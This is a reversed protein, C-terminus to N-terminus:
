SLPSLGSQIKIASNRAEIFKKRQVFGRAVKQIMVAAKERRLSEVERRALIGRWRAQALIAGQRLARYKKVAVLRRLNKQVLLGFHRLRDLRLGELYALMGARFFLKTLGIQYKDEEHISAELIAACLTKFDTAAEPSEWAASNVLM